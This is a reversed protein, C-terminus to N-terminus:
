VVLFASRPFDFPKQFQIPIFNKLKYVKSGSVSLIDGDWRVAEIHCSLDAALRQLTALILRTDTGRDGSPHQYERM